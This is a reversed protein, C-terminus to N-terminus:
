RIIKAHRLKALATAKYQKPHTCLYARSFTVTRLRTPVDAPGASPSPSSTLSLRAESAKKTYKDYHVNDAIMPLLARGAVDM